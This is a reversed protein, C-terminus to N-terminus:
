RSDALPLQLLSQDSSKNDEKLCYDLAEVIDDPYRKAAERALGSPISNEVILEQEILYVSDKQSQAVSKPDNEYQANQENACYENSQMNLAQLEKLVVEPDKYKNENKLCWSSAETVLAEQQINANSCSKISLYALKDPYDEVLEEYANREDDNLKNILQMVLKEVAAEKSIENDPNFQSIQVNDDHDVPKSSNDLDELKKSSHQGVLSSETKVLQLCEKVDEECIKPSISMLMSLVAPPLSSIRECNLQGLQQRIVRLQQTTFLNFVHCSSRSMTIETNWQNLELEMKVAQNELVTSVDNFECHFSYSWTIYQAHGANRLELLANAIRCM